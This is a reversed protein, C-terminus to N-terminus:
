AEETFYVAGSCQLELTATVVSGSAVSVSLQGCVATGKITISTASADPIVIAWDVLSGGLAYIETANDSSLNLTLSVNGWDTRGPIRTVFADTLETSDLGEVSPSPGSIATVEALATAAPSGSDADMKFVTGVPTLLAM